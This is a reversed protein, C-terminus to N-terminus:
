RTCPTPTLYLDAANNIALPGVAVDTYDAGGQFGSKFPASVSLVPLDKYQPLSAQIYAAVYAQQAQNVVQIAGPDGVDAFLTSMRFDTPRHADERVPHGGPAAAGGAAAITPDADVRVANGAADKGTQITRLASQQGGQRQGLKSGNDWRLALQVVGLGQGSSAM